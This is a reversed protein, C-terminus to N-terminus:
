YDTTIGIDNVTDGLGGVKSVIPITAYRMSYMQNLGCPEVRSPMLLYDAGAYMLHALSENYGKEFVCNSRFVQSAISLHYETSSIGSGLIIFNAKLNQTFFQDILPALLDAGKEFM